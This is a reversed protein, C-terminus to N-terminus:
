KALCKNYLDMFQHAIVSNDYKLKAQEAITPRSYNNYNSMINNMAETLANIDNSNVLLGNSENIADAIGGVNSSAVPLGCCLAEVLVCPFNEHKSFLVFAHANQMYSSVGAHPVEGTFSIHEELQLEKVLPQHLHKHHGVLILNCNQKKEKILKDFALILGTINKQESLTSVHLWTFTKEQQLPQYFFYNTDAINHITYINKIGLLYEMKRAIVSSVNSVAFANKCVKKTNTKFFWSRNKFTDPAEDDYYSAQESVIYPINYQRKIKLAIWGAKMPVHVHILDPNGHTSFYNEVFQMAKKSYCLNYRIKDIFGIGWKKFNFYCIYETLNNEKHEEIANHTQVDKGLQVIHLVEVPMLVALAKAHRQIFDGNVPEYKNPYWSALWLIKM